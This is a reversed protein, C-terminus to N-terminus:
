PLAPDVAKPKSVVSSLPFCCSFVAGQGLESSIKLQAEHRQLVHKVIALGLGTGGDSQSRGSDVRYFRETLRDLHHEAIGGGEDCVSIVAQQEDVTWSVVIKCAAPTYNVANFVLNSIASRLEGLDALLCDDSGLVLQLDHHDYRALKKADGVIDQLVYAVDVAVIELTKEGTELRSLTLLEQLMDGMREAQQRMVPLASQWQEPPTKDNFMELYGRLVTLPTRLEHSANAVFDRRMKQLKVTQTMDRAVLMRGGGMYRVIKIELKVETNVPSVVAVVQGMTSPDAIFQQFSPDRILNNLRINNDRPWNVGLLTKASDNAWDVEGFESLVVVADPLAATASQFRKLYGGLKKKRSRNQQRVLEIERCVDDIAGEATPPPNKKPKKLWALLQSWAHQLWLAYLFAAIFMFTMMQGFLLGIFGALSVTALLRWYDWSM